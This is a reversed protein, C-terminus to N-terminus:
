KEVSIYPMVRNAEEQTLINNKVLEDMNNITGQLKRYNLIGRTQQENLYPHSVLDKFTARNIFIKRVLLSDASLSPTLRDMLETKIGYVEDLQSVKAYGGIRNRYKIIRSALVPGIGPLQTLETSDATNLEIHVIKKSPISLTDRARTEKVQIDVKRVPEKPPPKEGAIVIYPELAEYQAVSITYLKRFDEKKRFRGGKAQYNRINRIQRNNLGLKEWDKDTATNPDFYFLEITSPHFDDATGTNKTLNVSDVAKQFSAIEAEFTTPDSPKHEMWRPLLLKVCFVVLIVVCLVTIGYRESRTFNLYKKLFSKWPM